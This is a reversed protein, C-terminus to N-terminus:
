PQTREPVHEKKEVACTHRHQNSCEQVHSQPRQVKPTAQSTQLSQHTCAHLTPRALEPAHQSLENRATETCRQENLFESRTHKHTCLQTKQIPSLTICCSGDKQTCVPAKLTSPGVHTHQHTHAQTTETCPQPPRRHARTRTKIERHAHSPTSQARFLLPFAASTHTHAACSSSPHSLLSKKGHTRTREGTPQQTFKAKRHDTADAKANTESEISLSTCLSFFLVHMAHTEVRKRSHDRRNNSNRAHWQQTRTRAVIVSFSRVSNLSHTRTCAEESCHMQSDQIYKSHMFNSTREKHLVLAFCSHQLKLSM